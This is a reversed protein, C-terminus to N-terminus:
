TGFLIRGSNWRNNNTSDKSHRSCYCVLLWKRVLSLVGCRRNFGQYRAKLVIFNSFFYSLHKKLQVIKIELKKKELYFERNEFKVPYFKFLSGIKLIKFSIISLIHLIPSSQLTKPVLKWFIFIQKENWFYARLSKKTGYLIWGNNWRTNNLFNPSHRLCYCVLSWPSFISLISIEETKKKQVFWFPIYQLFTSHIV